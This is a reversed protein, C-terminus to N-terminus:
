PLAPANLSLGPLLKGGGADFGVLAFQGTAEAVLVMLQEAPKAKHRLQVFVRHHIVEVTYTCSDGIRESKRHIIPAYPSVVEIIEPSSLDIADTYAAREFARVVEALRERHRRLSTENHPPCDTTYASWQKPKALSVLADIDRAFLAVVAQRAVDQAIVTDGNVAGSIPTTTSAPVSAKPDGGSSSSCAVLLAAVAIASRPM